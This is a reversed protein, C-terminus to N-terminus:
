RRGQLHAIHTTLVRRWHGPLDPAAAPHTKSSGPARASLPWCPSRKTAFELAGAMPRLQAPDPVYGDEIAAWQCAEMGALHAAEEVSRGGAERAKEICTGFLRGWAQRRILPFIMRCNSQISM